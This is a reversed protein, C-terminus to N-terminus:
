CHMIATKASLKRQAENIGAQEYCNETSTLTALHTVRSASGARKHSPNSPRLLGFGSWVMGQSIIGYELASAHVTEM